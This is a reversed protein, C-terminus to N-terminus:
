VCSKAVAETTLEHINNDELGLKNLSSLTKKYYDLCTGYEGNANTIAYILDNKSIGKIFLKHDNNVTFCLAMIEKTAATVPLWTPKYLGAPMERRWLNLLDTELRSQAIRLILGHCSTRQAKDLAFVIGPQQKSGRATLTWLCPKRAWGKLTGTLKIEPEFCPAWMLAGYAYVWIERPYQNQRLTKELSDKLQEDSFQNM